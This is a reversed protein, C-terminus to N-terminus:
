VLKMALFMEPYQEIRRITYGLTGQVFEFLEQRLQASRGGHSEGWSEFLIAPYNTSALFRQSGELVAREHGEVDIKILQVNLSTGSLMEEAYRDLTTCRVMYSQLTKEQEEHVPEIGNGGGDSSRILYKAQTVKGDSLAVQELTVKNEIGHLACNAALYCFVKSNCEFAIVKSCRKAALLTWTGVHAGIDIFTGTPTLFRDLMSNILAREAFGANYFWTAVGHEPFFLWQKEAPNRDPKPLTIFQPNDSSSSGELFLYM